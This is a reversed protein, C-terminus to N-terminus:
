VAARHLKPGPANGNGLESLHDGRLRSRLGHNRPLEMMQVAEARGSSRQRLARGVGVSGAAMLKM